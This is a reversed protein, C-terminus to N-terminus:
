KIRGKKTEVVVMTIIAAIEVLIVFIVGCWFESIYM